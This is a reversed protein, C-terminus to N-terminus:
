DDLDFENKIEEMSYIRGPNELVHLAEYLDEIDEIHKIIAETIYFTKSRGTKKALKELRQNIETPLRLAVQQRLEKKKM